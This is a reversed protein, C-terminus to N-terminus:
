TKYIKKWLSIKGFRQLKQFSPDPKLFKIMKDSCNEWTITVAVYTFVRLVMNLVNLMFVKLFTSWLRRTHRQDTKLWFYDELLRTLNLKM